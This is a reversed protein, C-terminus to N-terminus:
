VKPHAHKEEISKKPNVIGWGTNKDWGPDEADVAVKTLHEYMQKQNECPTKGGHARHKSLILAAVGAVFPTAM